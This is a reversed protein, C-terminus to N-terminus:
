KSELLAVARVALRYADLGDQYGRMYERSAVERAPFIPSPSVEDWGNVFGVLYNECIDFLDQINDLRGPWEETTAYYALGMGCAGKDGTNLDHYGWGSRQSPRFGRTTFLEAIEKPTVRTM